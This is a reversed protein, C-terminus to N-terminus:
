GSSTEAAIVSHAGTTSSADAKAIVSDTGVMEQGSEPFGVGVWGLTTAAIGVELIASAGSMTLNYYLDYATGADLLTCKTYTAATAGVTLGCGGQLGM